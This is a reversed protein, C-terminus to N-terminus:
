RDRREAWQDANNALNRLAEEIESSSTANPFAVDFYNTVTKDSTAQPITPTYGSLMSIMQGQMTLARSDLASEISRIIGVAALINETDEKNLILEKEHIFALKGSAGWEGTYGGTAFGAKRRLETTDYGHAELWALNENAYSAGIEAARQGEETQNRVDYSVDEAWGKSAGGRDQYAEPRVGLFMEAAGSEGLSQAWAAAAYNDSVYDVGLGSIASVTGAQVSALERLANICNQVADFLKSYSSATSDIEDITAYLAQAVEQGKTKLNETSKSVNDVDNKLNDLDTHSESAVQKINAQYENFHDKCNNITDNLATEYDNANGTMEVLTDAYTTKFDDISLKGAEVLDNYAQTRDGYLDAAKQTYYEEIEAIREWKEEETLEEDEFIEQIADASDQWLQVIDSTVQETQEKAINYWENQAEAQQQEAEAVAGQDATFQYNWNGQRDRVLRLNNKANEADQLAM